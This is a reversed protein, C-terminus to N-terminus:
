KNSKFFLNNVKKGIPKELYKFSLVGFLFFFIILIIPIIWNYKGFYPSLKIVILVGIMKHILYVSYSIRGLKSLFKGGLFKLLNNSYLFLFWIFASVITFCKFDQDKSTFYALFFLFILYILYKYDKKNEYLKSIIIGILFWILYGIFPIYNMIKNLSNYIPIELVNNGTGFLYWMVTSLLTLLSFNLIINKKNIFYLTSVIFYFIVEIWLSWYSYDIYNFNTNLIKNPISPTLFTNSYILNKLEKAQPYFSNDFINFFTFTLISCILMGPMLRLYRKKIFEIYNKSNKLTIFIVFGSIMFFFEVGLYGFYFISSDFNYNYSDLYSSYFHYLMVITIAIVRFGDLINIRKENM